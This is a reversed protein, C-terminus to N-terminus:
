LDQTFCVDQDNPIIEVRGNKYIGVCSYTTGLDIGIVPGDIKKEEEKAVVSFVALAILCLRGISANMALKCFEAVLASVLSLTKLEHQKGIRPQQPIKTDNSEAKKPIPKQMMREEDM